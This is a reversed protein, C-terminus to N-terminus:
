RRTIPIRFTTNEWEYILSGSGGSGEFRFTLTEVPDPLRSPTVTFSGVDSRRVDPSLPIGWRNTNANVVITWSGAQPIAYLTYSGPGVQVSGVTAPFPLHLTTPENAGMRWPLGYPDQGGVMSRGRTSPRGYCLKADEGGLTIRVSDLPSERSALADPAGRFTCTQAAATAPSSLATLLVALGLSM